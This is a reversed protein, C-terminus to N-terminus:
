RSTCRATPTKQMRTYGREVPVKKTRRDAGSTPLGDVFLATIEDCGGDSVVKDGRAVLGSEAVDAGTKAVHEVEDLM